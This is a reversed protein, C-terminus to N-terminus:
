NFSSQECENNSTVTGDCCMFNTSGETNYPRRNPYTGCCDMKAKGNNPDIPRIQCDNEPEFGYFAHNDPEYFDIVSAFEIITHKDCECISHKCTNPTDLCTVENTAM